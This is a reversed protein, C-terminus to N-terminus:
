RDLHLKGPGAQLSSGRRRHQVLARLVAQIQNAATPNSSLTVMSFGAQKLGTLAPTLDPYTPMTASLQKLMEFPM